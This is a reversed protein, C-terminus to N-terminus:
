SIAVQAQLPLKTIAPPAAGNADLSLEGPLASLGAVFSSMSPKDLYVCRKGTKKCYDKVLWYATHSICGTQCVVCDAAALNADLRHHNHEIGGDHHLFKGGAREVARRYAAVASSRGGVCLVSKRDLNVVQAAQAKPETALELLPPAQVKAPASEQQALNAALQQKLRANQDALENLRQTLKQRSELQEVSQSLAEWQLKLSDNQSQVGILAAEADIVQQRLAGAEQAQQKQALLLKARADEIEVLREAALRRAQTLAQTDRRTESGVRHQIMHIDHGIQTILARDARPHTLGAWLAGALSPAESEEDHQDSIASRWLAAVAVQSKATHFRKIQKQYCRDLERQVLEILPTRVGCAQVVISHVEYDGVICPAKYHKVVLRRLADIPFCVGIVSCHMEIPLEWLRARRSGLNAAVHAHVPVCTGVTPAAHLSPETHTCCLAVAQQQITKTPKAHTM